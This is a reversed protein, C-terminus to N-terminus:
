QSVAALVAATVASPSVTGHLGLLGRRNVAETITIGLGLSESVIECALDYYDLETKGLKEVCRALSLLEDGSAQIGLARLTVPDCFDLVLLDNAERYQNLADLLEPTLVDDTDNAYGLESLAESMEYVLPSTGGKLIIGYEM